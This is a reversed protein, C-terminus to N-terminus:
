VLLLELVLSQLVLAVIGDGSKYQDGYVKDGINFNTIIGIKQDAYIKNDGTTCFGSVPYNYADYMTIGVGTVSTGCRFFISPTDLDDTIFDGTQIGSQVLFM